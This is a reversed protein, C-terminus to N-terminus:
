GDGSSRARDSPRLLDEPLSLAFRKLGAHMYPALITLGSLDSSGILKNRNPSVAAKGQYALRLTPLSAFPSSLEAVLQDISKEAQPPADRRLQQLTVEDM